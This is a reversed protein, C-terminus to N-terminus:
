NKSVFKCKIPLKYAALSMAEKATKEDVGEIEFLVMGPKVVVVYHDVSGKGKGMPIEGGKLTVPKDPFIRIWIKGGRQIYRTMARRSAEIQRSNVWCSELSMLGFSGFNLSTKRTAQGGRKGKHSKRYKTKKPMLM